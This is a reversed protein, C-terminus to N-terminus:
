RTKKPEITEDYLGAEETIRVLEDLAASRHQRRENRYALVDRLLVRRHRNPKEFDIKGDDLLKVFTPRSVGLLDAAEQTTLTQHHPTLSVALGKSMADVVGKLIEFVELPLPITEGNPGVLAADAHSLASRLDEISEEPPLVTQEIRLSSM